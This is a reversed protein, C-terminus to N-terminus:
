VGTPPFKDKIRDGWKKPLWNTIPFIGVKSGYWVTAVLGIAVAGLAAEAAQVLIPADHRYTKHKV